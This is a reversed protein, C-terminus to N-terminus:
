LQNKVEHLVIYDMLVCHPINQITPGRRNLLKDVGGNLHYRDRYPRFVERPPASM